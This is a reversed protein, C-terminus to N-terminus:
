KEFREMSIFEREDFSDSAMTSSTATNLSVNQPNEPFRVFSLIDHDSLIMNKGKCKETMTKMLVKTAADLNKERSTVTKAQLLCNPEIHQSTYPIIGMFAGIDSIKQVGFFIESYFFTTCESKLKANKEYPDFHTNGDHQKSKKRLLSRYKATVTKSPAPRLKIGFVGFPADSLLSFIDSSATKECALPYLSSKALKLRVFSDIKTAIPFECHNSGFSPISEVMREHSKPVRLCLTTGSFPLRFVAFLFDPINRCLMLLDQDKKEDYKEGASSPFPNIKYWSYEMM